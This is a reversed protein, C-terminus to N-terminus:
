VGQEAIIQNGQWDFYWCIALRERQRICQGLTLVEFSRELSQLETSQYIQSVAAETEYRIQIKLKNSVTSKTRLEIQILAPSSPLVLQLLEDLVKIIMQNQVITETTEAASLDLQVSYSPHNTQWDRLYYQIALPLNEESYPFALAYSLHELRHHLKEVLNLWNQYELPLHNAAAALELGRRLAFLEQLAGERIQEAQDQAKLTQRNEWWRWAQRIGIRSALFQPFCILRALIV